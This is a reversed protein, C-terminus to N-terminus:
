KEAIQRVEATLTWYDERPVLFNWALRVRTTMPFM